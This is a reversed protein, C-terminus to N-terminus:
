QFYKGQILLYSKTKDSVHENVIRQKVIKSKKLNFNLKQSEFTYIYGTYGTNLLWYLTHFFCIVHMIKCQDISGYTRYLKSLDLVSIVM